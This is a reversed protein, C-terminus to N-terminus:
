LLEKLKKEDLIGVVNKVKEVKDRKSVLIVDDTEVVCLDDVDILVMLKKTNVLNNTSDIDIINKQKKYHKEQLSLFVNLNGVDYWEFDAPFVTVNESKELVAYDISISKLAEYCQGTKLYGKIGEVLEPQHTEFENLFTKLNAVFIGVNWFMYSCEIYLDAVDQNPKEHFKLVKYSEFTELKKDLGTGISRRQETSFATSTDAQIYGYGTAAYRPKLGFIAIENNETAFNIANKLYEQFKEKEPIFHDASLVVVVADKSKEKIKLCSLLIAPATNRGEPESIIQGVKSGVLNKVSYLQEQATVVIINKKSDSLDVVRDITQELLSTEGLFPILPKPQKKTSLPWLRQGQGGALIVFYVNKM